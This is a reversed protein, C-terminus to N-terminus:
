QMFASAADRLPMKDEEEEEKQCSCCPREAKKATPSSSLRKNACPNEDPGKGCLSRNVSACQPPPNQILCISPQRCPYVIKPNMTLSLEIVPDSWHSCFNWYYM